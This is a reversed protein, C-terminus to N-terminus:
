INELDLTGYVLEALNGSTLGRPLGTGKRKGREMAFPAGDITGRAPTSRLPKRAPPKGSKAAPRDNGFRGGNSDLQIEPNRPIKKAESRM